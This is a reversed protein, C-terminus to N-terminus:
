NSHLKDHLIFVYINAIIIIIADYQRSIDTFEPIQTSIQLETNKNKSCPEEEIM